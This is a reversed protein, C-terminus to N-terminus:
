IVHYHAKEENLMVNQDIKKFKRSTAGEDTRRSSFCFMEKFFSGIGNMMRYTKTTNTASESHFHNVDIM